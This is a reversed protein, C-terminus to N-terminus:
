KGAPAGTKIFLEPFPEETENIRNYGGTFQISGGPLGTRDLGYAGPPNVNVVNV